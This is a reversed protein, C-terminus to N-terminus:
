GPDYRVNRTSKSRIVGSASSPRIPTDRGGIKGPKRELVSARRLMHASNMLSDVAAKTASNEDQKTWEPSDKMASKVCVAMGRQGPVAGATAPRKIAKKKTTGGMNNALDDLISSKLSAMRDAFSGPIFRADVGGQPPLLMSYSPQRMPRKYM